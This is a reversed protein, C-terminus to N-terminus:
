TKLQSVVFNIVLDNHESICLKNMALEISM